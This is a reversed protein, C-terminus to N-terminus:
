KIIGSVAGNGLQRCSQSCKLACKHCQYKNYDIMNGWKKFINIPKDRLLNGLLIDRTKDKFKKPLLVNGDPNILFSAASRDKASLYFIKNEGFIKELKKIQAKVIKSPFNQNGKINQFPRDDVYKIVEYLKWLVVRDKYKVLLKGINLVDSFNNKNIVTTIYIKIKSNDYISQLSQTINAFSGAGRISDHIERSSGEFPIGISDVYKNIFKAYKKYFDLNTALCIKLGVKNMYKMIEAIDQRLLPEGGTIGIGRVGANVLKDVIKFVSKKNLDKANPRYCFFCRRNCKSTIRWCAIEPPFFM